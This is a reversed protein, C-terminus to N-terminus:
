NEKENKTNTYNKCGLQADLSIYRETRVVASCQSIKM